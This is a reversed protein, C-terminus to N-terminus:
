KPSPGYAVIIIASSDHDDVVSTAWGWTFDYPPPGGFEDLLLGDHYLKMENEAAASWVGRRRVEPEVLKLRIQELKEGVSFRLVTGAERGNRDPLWTEYWNTEATTRVLKISEGVVSNLFNKETLDSGIRASGIVVEGTKPDITM